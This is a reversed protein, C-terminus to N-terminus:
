SLRQAILFYILSGLGFAGILVAIAGPTITTWGSYQIAGFGLGELLLVLGWRLSAMRGLHDEGRVISEILEKSDCAQLMKIRVRANVLLKIAYTIGFTICVFLTLPVLDHEM